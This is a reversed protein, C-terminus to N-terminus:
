MTWEHIDINIHVVWNKRKDHLLIFTIPWHFTTSFSELLCTRQLKSSIASYFQILTIPQEYLFYKQCFILNTLGHQLHSTINCRTIHIVTKSPKTRMNHKKKKWSAHITTILVKKLHGIFPLHTALFLHFDTKFLDHDKVIAM